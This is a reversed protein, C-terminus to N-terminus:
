CIVEYEQLMPSLFCPTTQLSYLLKPIAFSHRFLLLANHTSLHKLRERMVELSKIKERLTTSISALDGISSGLLTANTPDVVHAGELSSSVHLESKIM